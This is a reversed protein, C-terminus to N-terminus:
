LEGPPESDNDPAPPKITFEEDLEKFLQEIKEPTGVEKLGRKGLSLSTGSTITVTQKFENFEKMYQKKFAEYESKYDNFEEALSNVEVEGEELHLFAEDGRTEVLFRTGKVGIVATKTIVNLSRTADRKNISFLVKGENLQINQDDKFELTSSETILVKSDDALTVRAKSNSYTRVFQNLGVDTPTTTIRKGRPSGENHITVKGQVEVVNGLIVPNSNAYVVGLSLAVAAIGILLVSPKIM